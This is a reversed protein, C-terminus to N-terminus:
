IRCYINHCNFSPCTPVTLKGLKLEELLINFKLSTVSNEVGIVLNAGRARLNEESNNLLILSLGSINLKLPFKQLM